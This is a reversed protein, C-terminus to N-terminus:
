ASSGARMSAATRSLGEELGVLPRWAFLGRAKSPDAVLRDFDNPRRRGREVSPRLDCKTARVALAAMRDVRVGKGTGVNVVERRRDRDLGALRFLRAADEVFVFDRVPWPNGIKLSRGELCQSLVSPIVFSPRQGPGYVNFLRLATVPIGYLGDYALALSEAAAKSASYPNRPLTAHGEPLRGRFPPGYVQATSALVFRRLPRRRTRAEELLHATGLVNVKFTTSPDAVSQGVNSLAALHYVVDAKAPVLPRPGKLLDGRVVQAGQPLGERAGGRVLLTVRHGQGLLDRALHNALFGGGGTIFAHVQAM